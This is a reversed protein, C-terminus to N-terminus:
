EDTVKQWQGYGPNKGDFLPIVSKVGRDYLAEIQPLTKRLRKAVM